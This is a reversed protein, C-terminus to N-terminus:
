WSLHCHLPTPTLIARIFCIHNISLLSKQLDTLLKFPLHLSSLHSTVGLRGQPRGAPPHGVYGPCGNTDCVGSRPCPTLLPSGTAVILREWHKPDSGNMKASTSCKRCWGTGLSSPSQLTNMINGQNVIRARSPYIESEVTNNSVIAHFRQNLDSRDFTFEGNELEETIPEDSCEM